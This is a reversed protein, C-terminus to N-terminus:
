LVARVRAAVEATAVALYIYINRQDLLSGINFRRREREETGGLSGRGDSSRRGGSGGSSGLRGVVGAAHPDVVLAQVGGLGSGVKSAALAREVGAGATQGSPLHLSPDDALAMVLSSSNSSARGM